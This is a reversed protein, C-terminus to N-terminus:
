LRDPDSRRYDAKTMAYYVVDTNYYHADKEYTMGVKEIVRRSAINEPHAIAVIRDLKVQEFGYQISALAAETAIGQGWYEQAFVYGLEVEPTKDLFSLGCRGMLHGTIKEVVAWMGFDYNQWQQIHGSLSAETQEKSRTGLLYKMVTADQYIRYLDDLDERTFLRLRLRATELEHM